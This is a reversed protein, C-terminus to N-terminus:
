FNPRIVHDLRPVGNNRVLKQFAEYPGEHRLFRHLQPWETSLLTIDILEGNEAKVISHSLFCATGEPALYPVYLWGGVPKGPKIKIWRAVNDHCRGPEPIWNDLKDGVQRVCVAPESNLREFLRAAL